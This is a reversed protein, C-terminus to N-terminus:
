DSLKLRKGPITSNGGGIRCYFELLHGIRGTDLQQAAWDGSQGLCRKWLIRQEDALRYLFADWQGGRFSGGLGDVIALMDVKVVVDACILDDVGQGAMEVVGGREGM